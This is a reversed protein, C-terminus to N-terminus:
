RHTHLRTAATSDGQLSSIRYIQETKVHLTSISCVCSAALKTLGRVIRARRHMLMQGSVPRFLSTGAHVQGRIAAVLLALKDADMSTSVDAPSGSSRRRGAGDSDDGSRAEGGHM